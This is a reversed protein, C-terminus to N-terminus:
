DRNTETTLVKYGYMHLLWWIPEQVGFPLATRKEVEDNRDTQGLENENINVPTLPFFMFREGFNTQLFQEINWGDFMQRLYEACLRSRRQILDLTIPEDQTERLKDLFELARGGLPNMNVLLDLKSICVAVPMDLRDGRLKESAARLDEKFRRATEIQDDISLSTGSQAASPRTRTPDLFLVFGDMFLARKKPEDSVSRMGMEGGYDFLMVLSQGRPPLVDGDSLRLVIPLPVEDAKTATHQKGANSPTVLSHHAPGDTMDREFQKELSRIWKTKGSYIIGVTPFCLRTRRQVEPTFEAACRVGKRVEGECILKLTKQGNKIPKLQNETLCRPCTRRYKRLQRWHKWISWHLPVLILGAIGFLAAVEVRKMVRYQSPRQTQFDTIERSEKEISAVLAKSSLEFTSTEFELSFAQFSLESIRQQYGTQIRESNLIAATVSRPKAAEANSDEELSKVTAELEAVESQLNVIASRIFQEEQALSDIREQEWVSRPALPLLPTGCGQCFISLGALLWLVMTVPKRAAACSRRWQRIERRQEHLWLLLAVFAVFTLAWLSRIASALIQSWSLSSDRRLHAAEEAERWRSEMQLSILSLERHRLATEDRKKELAALLKQLADVQGVDGKKVEEAVEAALAAARAIDLLRNRAAEQRTKLLNALELRSQLFDRRAQLTLFQQRLDVVVNESSSNLMGVAIAPESGFWLALAILVGHIIGSASGMSCVTTKNVAHLRM